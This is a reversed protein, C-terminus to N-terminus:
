IWGLDSFEPVGRHWAAWGALLLLVGMGDILSPGHGESLSFLRSGTDPMLITVLGLASLIAWWRWSRTVFDITGCGSLDWM